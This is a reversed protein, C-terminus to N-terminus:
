TSLPKPSDLLERVKRALNISTFPKQLFATNTCSLKPNDIAADAYGSIFLTKLDPFRASLKDVLQLGSMRPMIVDTVLLQISSAHADFLVLAERGDQAELVTYGKSELVKRALLRVADEDEVLLITETGEPSKVDEQPADTAQAGVGACPLYLTFTTGSGPVSEVDVHGGSQKTFGYVMALGLGTGKGAPKTTFFPEFVRQQMDESMGHGTDAVSVTVYDGPIVDPHLNVFETDFATTGTRITLRGEDKMADRANVALNIIAQEFHGPDVEALESSQALDLVIEIHAGLLRQLLDYLDQLCASPSVARPQLVQKRSFALLQGTLATARESAKQIQVILERIPDDARLGEYALESNGNIVTLLNNFDHAVGGALQGVAEMKQAQRFQEELRKLETIDRVFALAYERDLTIRTFNVEVPFVSGDKRRHESEFVISRVSRTGKGESKPGERSAVPDIDMVTMTLYEERSYGHMRCATENVDLFQFTEPDIVEIAESAHDILTRFLRLAEEGSKRETIDHTTGVVKMPRRAAGDGIFHTRARKAIWRTSGDARVIRHEVAYEGNGRPDHAALIRAKLWDRDDPHSLAVIDAMDAESRDFGYLEQARADMHLVDGDTDHWWSGLNAVDLALRAQEESQRLRALTTLSDLADSLRRGIENFLGSERRTWRRPQACQHLGFLWSTTNKPRLMMALQSQVRFVTALGEPIANDVGPGFEVPGDAAVLKRMVRAMGSDVPVEVGAAAAGPFEPRTREMPVHLFPAEPDCPNILWARDCAFISLVTDLVAEMMQELDTAEQVARNVRDLSELFWLYEGREEKQDVWPLKQGARVDNEM